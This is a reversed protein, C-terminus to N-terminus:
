GPQSPEGLDGRHLAGRGAWRAVVAREAAAATREGGCNAAATRELECGARGAAHMAVRGPTGAAWRVARGAAVATVHATLRWLCRPARARETAWAAARCRWVGYPTCHLGSVTCARCRWAARAPAARLGLGLGLGAAPWMAPWGAPGCAPSRPAAPTSGHRAAARRQRAAAAM